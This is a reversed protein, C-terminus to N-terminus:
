CGGETGFVASTLAEAVDAIPRGDAGGVPRVLGAQELAAVAAQFAAASLGSYNPQYYIGFDFIGEAVAREPLGLAGAKEVYPVRMGGLTEVVDEASVGSNWCSDFASIFGRVLERVNVRTPEMELTGSALNPLLLFAERDDVIFVKDRVQDNPVVKLKVGVEAVDRRTITHGFAVVTRVDSVRHYEVGAEIRGRIAPWITAIDPLWPPATVGRIVHEASGLVYALTSSAAGEPVPLLGPEDYIPGYAQMLMAELRACALRYTELEEKQDDSLQALAHESPTLRWLLRYFLSRCVIDPGLPRIEEGDEGIHRVVM